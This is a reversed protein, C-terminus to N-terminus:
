VCRSTYLLCASNVSELLQRDQIEPLGKKLEDISLPDNSPKGMQKEINLLKRLIGEQTCEKLASYQQLELNKNYQRLFEQFQLKKPNSDSM